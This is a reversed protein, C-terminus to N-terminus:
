AAFLLAVGAIAIMAGIVARPTIKDAFVVYGIPILLIPTTGTLTSSIGVSTYQLSLLVLTTGIVPGVLSAFTLILLARPEAWVLRLNERLKGRAIIVLWLIVLGVLTRIVSASMAHFGGAVGESMLAFSTGQGIASGVALALGRSYNANKMQLDRGADDSVVWGIGAVVVVIGFVAISSLGQGLFVWALLAAVIPTISGILMALRPGIYQFSRLLMVSSVVYGSLSSAGLLTWRELSASSPFPEGLLAHHMLILFVLSIQLSLAMSVTAGFKRGALTFTTSALAFSLAAGLASLEGIYTELDAYGRRAKRYGAIRHPHSNM